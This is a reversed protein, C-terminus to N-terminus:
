LSAPLNSLSSPKQGGCSRGIPGRARTGTSPDGTHDAAARHVGTHAPPFRSGLLHSGPPVPDCARFQSGVIGRPRVPCSSARAHARGGIATGGAHLPGGRPRLAPAQRKEGLDGTNHVTYTVQPSTPTRAAPQMTVLSLPPLFCLFGGSVKAHGLAQATGTNM